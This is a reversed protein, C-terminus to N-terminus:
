GGPTSTTTEVGDPGLETAFIAGAVRGSIAAPMDAEFAPTTSPGADPQGASFAAFGLVAVLAVIL